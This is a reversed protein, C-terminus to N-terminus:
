IRGLAQLAEMKISEMNEIEQTLYYKAANIITDAQVKTVLKIKAILEAADLKAVDHITRIGANFM